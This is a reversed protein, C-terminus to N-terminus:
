LEIKDRIEMKQVDIKQRYAEADYNVNKDRIDDQLHDSVGMFFPEFYSISTLHNNIRNACPVLRMAVVALASLQTIVESAEIGNLLQLMMFIIM